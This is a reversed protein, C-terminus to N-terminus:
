RCDSRVQWVDVAPTIWAGNEELDGAASGAGGEGFRIMEPPMYDLQGVRHSAPRGAGRVRVATSFDCLCVSGDKRQLVSGLNIATHVVGQAKCSACCM